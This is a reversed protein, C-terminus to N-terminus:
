VMKIKEEFSKITKLINKSLIYKNKIEFNSTLGYLSVSEM